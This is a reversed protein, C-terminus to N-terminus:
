TMQWLIASSPQLCINFVVPACLRRYIPINCIEILNTILFIMFVMSCSRPTICSPWFVYLGTPVNISSSSCSSQVSHCFLFLVRSYYQCCDKNQLRPVFLNCTTFSLLRWYFWSIFHHFLSVIFVSYGFMSPVINVASDYKQM